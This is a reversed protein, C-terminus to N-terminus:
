ASALSVESPLACEGRTFQTPVDKTKDPRCRDKGPWKALKSGFAPCSIGDHLTRGEGAVGGKREKKRRRRRRPRMTRMTLM